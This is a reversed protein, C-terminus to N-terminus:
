VSSFRFLILLVSARGVKNYPLSFQVM